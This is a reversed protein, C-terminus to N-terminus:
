SYVNLYYMLSLFLDIIFVNRNSEIEMEFMILRMWIKFFHGYQDLGKIEKLISKTKVLDILLRLYNEITRFGVSLLNKCKSLLDSCLDCITLLYNTLSFFNM